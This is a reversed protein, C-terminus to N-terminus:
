QPDAADDRFQAGVTAPEAIMSSTAAAM